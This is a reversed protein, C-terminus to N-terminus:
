TILFGATYWPHDPSLWVSRGYRLRILDGSTRAIRMLLSIRIALPTPFFLLGLGTLTYGFM